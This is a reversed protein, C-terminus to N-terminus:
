LNLYGKEDAIEQVRKIALELLEFLRGIPTDNWPLRKDIRSRVDSLHLLLLDFMREEIDNELKELYKELQTSSM